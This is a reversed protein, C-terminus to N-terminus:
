SGPMVQELKAFFSSAMTSALSTMAASATSPSCEILTRVALPSVSNRENQTPWNGVTLSVSGFAVKSVAWRISSLVM